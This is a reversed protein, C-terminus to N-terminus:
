REDVAVCMDAVASTICSYIEHDEEEEEEETRFENM